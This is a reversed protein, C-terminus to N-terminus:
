RILRVNTSIHFPIKLKRAQQQLSFLEVESEVITFINIQGCTEWRQLAKPAISSLKYMFPSSPFM